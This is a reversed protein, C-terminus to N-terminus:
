LKAESAKKILEAAHSVAAASGTEAGMIRALEAPREEDSLRKVNTVTRGNEEHKSVVFHTDAFAAIQPLHTVCLVQHKGAIKKMRLGVTNATSGSIGTDVEDFILTPIGDADTIVTKLALMIRSLEGGSAVKSLPKLPEGENASLLLSVEDSGGEHPEDDIMRFEASLRAKKMGLEKLQQEALSCLRGASAKRAETLKAAAHAYEAKLAAKKKELALRLDADGTLEALERSANEAFELVESATRGYKHKLGDIVDLRTELEDIRRPDFDSDLGLDRVSYAADEVEYYLDNLRSYVEGFSASLDSIKSLKDVAAKLEQVAGGESTLLESASALSESIREANTLIKLEENIRDEEDAKLSAKEIENIQYKLIDIRREREAESLFGSNLKRATEAYESYLANVRDLLPSIADWTYADIVGLHNSEDLLSQHEHQGHVDVLLDTVKKLSVLPLIVGNVRCLSKGNVALERTISLEEGDSPIGLGDLVACIEPKDKIDFLAEVRCKQKGYSILERSGRAGLVLEIGDIIISKGAGTEGTLVTFGSGIELDLKEILAVNEIILREIM